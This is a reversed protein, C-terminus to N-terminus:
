RRAPSARDWPPRRRGDCMRMTSPRISPSSVALPRRRGTTGAGGRLAVVALAAEARCVRECTRRRPRGLRLRRCAHAASSGCWTECPRDRAKRACCSANPGARGQADDDADARDDGHHLDALARLGGQLLGDGAHAGVREQDLRARGGAAADAEAGARAHGERRLVAVFDGALAGGDAVDSGDDPGTRLDDVAVAVPHGVADVAGRGAEEVTRSQSSRSSPSMNVSRSTRLRLLTQTM